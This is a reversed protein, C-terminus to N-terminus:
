RYFQEEVFRVGVSDQRQPRSRPAVSIIMGDEEVASPQYPTGDYNIYVIKEDEHHSRSPEVIQIRPREKRESISPKRAAVYYTQDYSIVPAASSKAKRLRLGSEIAKLLGRVAEYGQPIEVHIFRYGDGEITSFPRGEKSFLYKAISRAHHHGHDCLTKGKLHASHPDACRKCHSAHRAFKYMADLEAQNPQRSVSPTLEFGVQRPRTLSPM